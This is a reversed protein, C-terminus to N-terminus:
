VYQRKEPVGDYIHIQNIALAQLEEQLRDRFGQINTTGGALIINNCLEQQISIDCKVISDILIQHIGIDNLYFIQASFPEVSVEI